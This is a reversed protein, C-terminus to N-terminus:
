FEYCTRGCQEGTNYVPPIEGNMSEIIRRKSKAIIPASDSPPHLGFHNAQVVIGNVQHSIVESSLTEELRDIDDWALTTSIFPHINDALPVENCSPSAWNKNSLSKAHPLLVQKPPRQPGGSADFVLDQGFSNFLPSVKESHSQLGPFRTSGTLLTFLFEKLYDPIAVANETLKYPRPPWSAKIEQSQITERLHVTTKSIYKASNLLHLM